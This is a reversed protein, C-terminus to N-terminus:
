ELRAKISSAPPCSVASKEKAWRAEFPDHEIHNNHFKAPGGYFRAFGDRAQGSDHVRMKSLSGNDNHGGQAFRRVPQQFKGFVRTQTVVEDAEPAEVLQVVIM